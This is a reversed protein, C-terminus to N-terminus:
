IAPPEAASHRQPQARSQDRRVQAWIRKWDVSLRFAFPFSSHAKTRVCWIRIFLSSHHFITFISIDSTITLTDVKALSDWWDLSSFSAVHFHSLIFENQQRGDRDSSGAFLIWPVLISHVIFARHCCILVFYTYISHTFLLQLTSQGSTLLLDNGSGFHSFFSFFIVKYKLIWLRSAITTVSNVLVQARERAFTFVKKRPM